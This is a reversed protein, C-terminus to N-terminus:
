QYYLKLVEDADEWLGTLDQVILYRKLVCCCPMPQAVLGGLGIRKKIM